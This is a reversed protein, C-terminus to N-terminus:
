SGKSERKSSHQSRRREQKPPACSQRPNFWTPLTVTDLDGGDILRLVSDATQIGFANADRNITSLPPSHFEALAVDDTTILSLDDPISLDLERIATLVGPLLQNSACILATAGHQESLATITAERGHRREIPGTKVFPAPLGLESCVARVARTRERTHRVGKPGAILAIRRHGLDALHRTAQGFGQAHDFLVRSSGPAGGDRDLLVTPKAFAAFEKLLPAEKEDTLSLLLGDVHRQRLLAINLADREPRGQSNALLVSYGNNALRSEAASAIASMLPNSIDGVVFGISMSVGRRLSQAVSNPQYGCAQVAQLVRVRMEPSVDPHNGLVRSVSSVAVAAMEAM